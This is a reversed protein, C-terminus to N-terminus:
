SHSNRLMLFAFALDLSPRDNPQVPPTQLAPAAEASPHRGMDPVPIPHSPPAPPVVPPEMPALFPPLGVQLPIRYHSGSMLLLSQAAAEAEAAPTINPDVFPALAVALPPLSPAAATQIPPPLYAQAPTPPLSSSLLLLAQAASVQVEEAQTPGRAPARPIPAAVYWDEEEDDEEDDDEEEDDEDDEDAPTAAANGSLADPGGRLEARAALIKQRAAARTERLRQNREPVVATYKATARYRKMHEQALLKKLEMKATRQARREAIEAALQRRLEETANPSAMDAEKQDILLDLYHICMNNVRERVRGTGDM